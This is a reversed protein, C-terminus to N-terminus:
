YPADTLYKILITRTMIIFTGLINSFKVSIFATWVRLLHLSRNGSFSPLQSVKHM